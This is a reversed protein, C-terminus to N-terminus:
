KGSRKDPHILPLRRYLRYRRTPHMRYRRDALFLYIAGNPWQRWLGGGCRNACPRDM